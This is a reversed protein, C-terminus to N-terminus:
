SVRPPKLSVCIIVDDKRCVWLCQQGDLYAEIECLKSFALFDDPPKTTGPVCNDMQNTFCSDNRRSFSWKDSFHEKTLSRHQQLKCCAAMWM